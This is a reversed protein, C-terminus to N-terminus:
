GDSAALPGATARYLATLQDGTEDGLKDYPLLGGPTSWDTQWAWGDPLADRLAAQQPYAYIYLYPAPHADTGPSFGLNMHPDSEEDNGRVFVLTSLDFGHSWLVLPTQFGLAHAKTRAIVDFAWTKMEAFAAGHAADFTLADTAMDGPTPLALDYEMEHIEDALAEFLGAQTAGDLRHESIMTGNHTHRLTGARYDVTFRGLHPLEGTTVGNPTPTLSHHLHNPLPELAAVRVTSIVQAALHLATQTPQWNPLAPLPM